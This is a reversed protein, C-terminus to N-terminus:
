HLAPRAAPNESALAGLFLFIWACIGSSAFPYDVFAHIFVALIGLGWISRWAARASAALLLAWALALPIGGEAAWELWDNHARHITVGADFRAFEPYVTAFTGLGYGSLPREAIMALASKYIEPRMTDPQPLRGLLTGGGAIAALAVAGAVFGTAIGPRALRYLIVATEIVLLAAGARSASALGASLIVAAAIWAAWVRRTLAFWLAVPLMLELFQAFHNRSLFPGWVDPYPAPFMWLIQGPSTYYAVVSVAAIGLGFWMAARLVRERLQPSSLFAHAAVATAACGAYRLATTWTESRSETAGLALQVFGWLAVAGLAIALVPRMGLGRMLGWVALGGALTVYALAAYDGPTWATLTALVACVFLISAGVPAGSLDERSVRTSGYPSGRVRAANFPKLELRLSM